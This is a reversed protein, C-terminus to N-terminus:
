IQVAEEIDPLRSTISRLCDCYTKIAYVLQRVQERANESYGTAFTWTNSQNYEIAYDPKDFIRKLLEVTGESWVGAEQRWRQLEAVDAVQITALAEGQGIREAIEREAEARSILLRAPRRKGVVRPTATSQQEM